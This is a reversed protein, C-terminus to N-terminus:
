NLIFPPSKLEYADASSSLKKGTLSKFSDEFGKSKEELKQRAEKDLPKLPFKRSDKVALSRLEFYYKAYESGKLHVSYDLAQLISKELFNLDDITMLPFAKQFDTNWVSLQEWMKCSIITSALIVRRWNNPQLQIGKQHLRDIYVMCMVGSEASIDVANFLHVLFTLIVRESPFNAKTVNFPYKVIAYREENFPEGDERSNHSGKIAYFLAKAMCRVIEERDPANITSRVGMLTSTSSRHASLNKLKPVKKIVIPSPVVNTGSSGDDIDQSEILQIPQIPDEDYSATDPESSRTFTVL